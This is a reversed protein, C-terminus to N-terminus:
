ARGPNRAPVNAPWRSYVMLPGSPIAPSRSREKTSRMSRISSSRL